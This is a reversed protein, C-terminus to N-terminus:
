QENNTPESFFPENNSKAERRNFLSSVSFDKHNKLLDAESSQQGKPQQKTQENECDVTSTLIASITLVYLLLM